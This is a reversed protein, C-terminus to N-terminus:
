NLLKYLAIFEEPLMGSPTADAYKAPPNEMINRIKKNKHNFLNQLFDIYERDPRIKQTLKVLMSSVKPQPSFATPPVKLLLNVDCTSQVLVTIFRYNKSEPKAALKEAFEKQYLLFAERFGHELLRVTIKRSISYPLNSIVKTCAPLPVKLADGEIVQVNNFGAVRRRLVSCLDADQEVAVVSKARSALEVTLHGNGAGVELVVDDKVINAHEVIEHLVLNDVMLRQDKKSAM